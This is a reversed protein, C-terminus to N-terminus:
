ICFDTIIIKVRARNGGENHMRKSFLLNSFRPPGHEKELILKGVDEIIVDYSINSNKLVSDLWEMRDEDVM